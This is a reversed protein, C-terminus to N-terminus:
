TELHPTVSISKSDITETNRSTQYTDIIKDNHNDTRLKGLRGRLAPRPCVRQAHMRRSNLLNGDGRYTIHIGPHDDRYADM